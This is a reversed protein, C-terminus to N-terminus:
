TLFGMGNGQKTRKVKPITFPSASEQTEQRSDVGYANKGSAKAGDKNEFAGDNNVGQPQVGDGACSTMPSHRSMQESEQINRQSNKNLIDFVNAM